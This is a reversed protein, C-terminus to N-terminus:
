DQFIHVMHYSGNPVIQHLALTICIKESYYDNWWDWKQNPSLMLEVDSLVLRNKGYPVCIGPNSKNHEIEKTILNTRPTLGLDFNTRSMRNIPQVPEIMNM